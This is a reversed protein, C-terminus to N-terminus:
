GLEKSKGILQKGILISNSYQKHRAGKKKKM